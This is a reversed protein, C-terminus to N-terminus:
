HILLSWTGSILILLLYWRIFKELLRFSANKPIAYVFTPSREIVEATVSGILGLEKEGQGRTGMIIILPKEKRAYYLIEEEPVGERLM